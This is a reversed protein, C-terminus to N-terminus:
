VVEFRHVVVVAVVVVAVVAVDVDTDDVVAVVDLVVTVTGRPHKIPVNSPGNTSVRPSGAARMPITSTSGFAFTHEITHEAAAGSHTNNEYSVLM